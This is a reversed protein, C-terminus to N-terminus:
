IIEQTRSPHQKTHIIDLVIVQQKAIKFIMKYNWKHASRYTVAKHALLPEPSHREPNSSLSEALAILAERVKKAASPSDQKIYEVISRLSARATRTIAVQYIDEM